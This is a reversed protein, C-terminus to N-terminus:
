FAPLSHMFEEEVKFVLTSELSTQRELFTKSNKRLGTFQVM